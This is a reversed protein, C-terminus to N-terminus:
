HGGLSTTQTIKKQLLESSILMILICILIFYPFVKITTASAIAGFLPPFFTSGIYAFAMQLGMIAGSATEGFRNPTEHLMSPYIPATGLGLLIIGLMSFYVPLPLILIIAGVVCVLQGIRILQASKTKMSLFGSVLRGVTIAAYFYAVWLAADSATLKKVTVLYSSSWLGTTLETACFFVFSVLALKVYKIKM